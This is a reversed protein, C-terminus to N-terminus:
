RVQFDFGSSEHQHSLEKLEKVIGHRIIKTEAGSAVFLDITTLNRKRLADGEEV